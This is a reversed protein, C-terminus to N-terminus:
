PLHHSPRRQTRLQQLAARRASVSDQRPRSARRATRAHRVPTDRGASAPAPRRSLCGTAAAPPMAAELPSRTGSLPVTVATEQLMM